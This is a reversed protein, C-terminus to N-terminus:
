RLLLGDDLEHRVAKARRWLDGPHKEVNERLEELLRMRTETAGGLKKRKRMAGAVKAVVSKWLAGLSRRKKKKKKTTTSSSSSERSDERSDDEDEDEARKKVHRKSTATKKKLINLIRAERAPRGKQELQEVQRRKRRGDKGSQLKRVIGKM